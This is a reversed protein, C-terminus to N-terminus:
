SGGRDLDASVPCGAEFAVYSRWALNNKPKIDSDNQHDRGTHRYGRPSPDVIEPCMEEKLFATMRM